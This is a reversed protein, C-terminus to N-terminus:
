ATVTQEDTTTLLHHHQQEFNQIDRLHFLVKRRGLVTKKIKYKKVYKRVCEAGRQLDAYGWRHALQQYNLLVRKQTTEM